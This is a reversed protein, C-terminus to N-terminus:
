WQQFPYAYSYRPATLIVRISSSNNKCLVHLLDYNINFHPTNPPTTIEGAEARLGTHLRAVLPLVAQTQTSLPPDRQCADVSCVRTLSAQSSDPSIGTELCAREGWAYSVQESDDEGDRNRGEQQELTRRLEALRCYSWAWIYVWTLRCLGPLAYCQRASSFIHCIKIGKGLFDSACIEPCAMPHLYLLPLICCPYTGRRLSALTVKYCIRCITRMGRSGCLALTPISPHAPSPSFCNQTGSAV